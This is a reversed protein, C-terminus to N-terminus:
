SAMMDSARAPMRDFGTVARCWGLVAGMEPPLWTAMGGHFDEWAPIYEGRVAILVPTGALIAREIISRLGTGEAESKGFRNLILLDVGREITDELRRSAEALAGPDLRCGRAHRGRDQSIQILTGDSLDRLRTIPHAGDFGYHEEQLIGGISLDSSRLAAAVEALVTDLPEGGEARIAAIVPM